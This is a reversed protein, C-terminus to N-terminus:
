RRLSFISRSGRSNPQSSPQTARKNRRKYVAIQDDVRIGWQLHEAKVAANVFLKLKEARERITQQSFNGVLHRHPLDPIDRRKMGNEKLLRDCLSRKWCYVTGYNTTRIELKYQIFKKCTRNVMRSDVIRASVLGIEDPIPLSADEVIAREEEEEVHKVVDQIQVFALFQDDETANVETNIAYCGVHPDLGLVEEGTGFRTDVKTRPSLIREDDLSVDRSPVTIQMGGVSKDMKIAYSEGQKDYNVVLGLGRQRVLVPVDKSLSQEYKKNKEQQIREQKIGEAEECDGM